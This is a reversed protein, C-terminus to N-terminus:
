RQHMGPGDEFLREAKALPVGHVHTELPVLRQPCEEMKVSMVCATKRTVTPDSHGSSMVSATQRTVTPDTCGSSLTPDSLKEQM